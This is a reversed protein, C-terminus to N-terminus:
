REMNTKNRKWPSNEKEVNTISKRGLPRKKNTNVRTKGKNHDKGKQAWERKIQSPRENKTNTKCNWWQHVKM